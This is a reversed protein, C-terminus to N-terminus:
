LGGMKLGVGGGRGRLFETAPCASKGELQITAVELIGSALGLYASKGHAELRGPSISFTKDTRRFELLKVRKGDLFGYLGPWPTYAQYRHYTEDASLSFDLLGDEKSIKACYTAEADNQPVLQIKGDEYALLTEILFEGSKKEFKEFLSASTEEPDVPIEKTALMEGEDMGETMRM